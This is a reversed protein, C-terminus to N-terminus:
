ESETIQALRHKRDLFRILFFLVMFLAAAFLMLEWIHSRMYPITNEGLTTGLWALFIYRPIRALAITVTFSLPGVLLAGASLVFIKLPLPIPVLAPIFVTLLGYELFWAKLKAGRGTSTYRNLYVEGGRRAIFFLILNGIISGGIAATAAVYAASHDLAAIVVLLADVGGPIPIGTSDLGALLLV